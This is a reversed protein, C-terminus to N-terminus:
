LWLHTGRYFDIKLFALVFVGQTTKPTAAMHKHKGTLKKGRNQMKSKSVRILM